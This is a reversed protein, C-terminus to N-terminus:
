CFESFGSACIVLLLFLPFSTVVGPVKPVMGVVPVVPSVPGALGRGLPFLCAELTLLGGCCSHIWLLRAIFGQLCCNAM